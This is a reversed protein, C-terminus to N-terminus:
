DYGYVDERFNLAGNEAVWATYYTIFIPIQPKLPVVIEKEGRMFLAIKQPTFHFNNRLLFQALQVPKEVRICGHSFSRKQKRFLGKQPTDHLYIAHSNPFMFKVLGLANHKGPKQRLRYPFTTNYMKWDISSAPLEQGKAGIVEIGYETLYGINKQIAPLIQALTISKPINWYPSFVLYEIKDNFLITRKHAVAQGVVVNCQWFFHGEKFVLLKFAPINVELYDGQLPKGAHKLRQLNREIQHIRVILPVRLAKWTQKGIDGDTQLGHRAQFRTVAVVMASDYIPSTDLIALDSFAYLQKKVQIVVQSTDGHKLITSFAPLVQLEETTAIRLYNQLQRELLIYSKSITDSPENTITSDRTTTITVKGVTEPLTPTAIPQAKANPTDCAYLVFVITGIWFTRHLLILPRKM